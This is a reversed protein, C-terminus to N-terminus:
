RKKKKLGKSIQKWKRKEALQADRSTKQALYAAERQLKVYNQWREETLVGQERAEVVACGPENAHTCNRFRCQESLEEIDQFSAGVSDSDTWLQLERMGPTDILCAGSPLVVLERHTTTHRGKADDERISAVQMHENQGLANTLSSKGAGSSGVLAATKGVTLRSILAALGYQTVVSVAYVDIGFAVQEVQEIFPTVDDCLDTKTLVVIPQAGSDWAAAIYRELRRINFDDNVSMVLLLVDVNVAVIQEEIDRGAVKRAFKSSRTFLAHIIARDEGDMYEILVFDGVAPYQERAIAEHAFSGSVTALVERQETIVRYMHKHELVVRGVHLAKTAFPARLQELQQEFYTTFGLTELNM